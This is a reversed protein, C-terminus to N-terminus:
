GAIGLLYSPLAVPNARYRFWLAWAVLHERHNPAAVLFLPISNIMDTASTTKSLM